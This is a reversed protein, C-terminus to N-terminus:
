EYKRWMNHTWDKVAETKDHIEDLRSKVSYDEERWKLLRVLEQVSVALDRVCGVLGAVTREEDETV